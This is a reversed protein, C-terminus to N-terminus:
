KDILNYWKKKNIKQHPIRPHSLFIELKQDKKIANSPFLRPNEELPWPNESSSRQIVNESTEINQFFIFHTVNSLSKKGERKKNEEKESKEREIRKIWPTSFATLDM